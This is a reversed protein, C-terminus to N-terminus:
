SSRREERLRLDQALFVMDRTGGMGLRRGSNHSLIPKATSLPTPRKKGILSDILRCPTTTESPGVVTSVAMGEMGAAMGVMGVAMGVVMDHGMLDRLCNHIDTRKSDTISM